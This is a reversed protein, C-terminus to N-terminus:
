VYPEVVKWISEAQHDLTHERHVYEIALPGKRRGDRWAFYCERLQEAAHAEDPEWYNGVPGYVAVYHDSFNEEPADAPVIRATRIPWAWQENIFDRMGSHCASVVEMGTAMAELPPLGIGEGKSPWLFCDHSHYLNVIEQPTVDGSLVRIRPDQNAALQFPYPNVRRSKITLAWSPDGESARQFIRVGAEANKRRSLAGLLLIKFRGDISRKAPTFQAIDVGATMVSIPITLGSRRWVDVQFSSTVILHDTSNVAAVHVPPVRDTEFQTITIKVPSPNDAISPEHPMSFTVAVRAPPKPRRAEAVVEEDLYTSDSWQTARLNAEVGLRRLGRWIDLGQRGYGELASIACWWDIIPRRDATYRALSGALPTLDVRVNCKTRNRAILSLPVEEWVGPALHQGEVLLPEAGRNMVRISADPPLCSYDMADDFPSQVLHWDVSTGYRYLAWRLRDSRLDKHM